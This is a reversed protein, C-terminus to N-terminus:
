CPDAPLTGQLSRPVLRPRRLPREGPRALVGGCGALCCGGFRGGPFIGLLRWLISAWPAGHVRSPRRSPAQPGRPPVSSLVPHAALVARRLRQGRFGRGAQRRPCVRSRRVRHRDPPARATHNMLHPDERKETDERGASAVGSGVPRAPRAADHGGDPQNGADTERDANQEM